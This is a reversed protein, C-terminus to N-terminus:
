SRGGALVLRSRRALDDTLILDATGTLTARTRQSLTLRGIVDFFYGDPIQFSLTPAKPSGVIVPTNTGFDSLFVEATGQLTLRESGSLKLHDYQLLFSETPITAAGVDYPSGGDPPDTSLTTGTMTLGSGVTIEQPSGTTSGRGVLKNASLNQMKAFTVAQPDITWVTGGGSVTVDGKDGDSVGGGGGVAVWAPGEDFYLTDTDTAWFFRQSGKSAPRRAFTDQQIEDNIRRSIDGYVRELARSLDAAWRMLDDPSRPPAPLSTTRPFAGLNM